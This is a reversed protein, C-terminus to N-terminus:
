PQRPTRHAADIRRHLLSALSLLDMADEETISWSIKPAHATPNRFSSFMGKMLSMMGTQEGRETETQLSNFALLPIGVSGSGFAQDVLASGDTTLGTRFRIKDAVSKTVELVAHFYNNRVLEARCFRLVDHHVARRQLESKLRGAREEAEDLTKAAVEGRIKGDVAVSYGCFVLVDNLAHRRYEFGERNNLYRVPDMAKEIFAIIDNACRRDRQGNALAVFLRSRKNPAPFREPIGLQALLSGMESGSLGSSTDALVNCIQELQTEEIVPFHAM